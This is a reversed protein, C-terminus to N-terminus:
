QMDLARVGRKIRCEEVHHRVMTLLRDAQKIAALKVYPDSADSTNMILNGLGFMRLVLPRYVQFDKVRYLELTDTDKNFVGYTMLLRQSTLLYGTNYTVLIRWIANLVPVILFVSVAIMVANIMSSPDHINVPSFEVKSNIWVSISLSIIGIVTSTINEIQSPKSSWIRKEVDNEKKM